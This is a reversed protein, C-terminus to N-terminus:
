MLLKTVLEMRPLVKSKRSEVEYIGTAWALLCEDHMSAATLQLGLPLGNPAQGAPLTCAPMGAYTWPLNMAPNGTSDIGQPAPGTAAPSIWLDIGEAAMLGELAARVTTRGARAAELEEATIRQGARIAQATREAYLQEHTAFWSAHVQAMEANMLVTQRRAVDEIDVLAAVRKITYGAQELAAVREEFAHLAERSAQALYAGEPVGLVPLRNSTCAQWDRCLLSAVLLMGEVDQTFLGVHDLSPACAILGGTPIRDFTPKFGVIGCFAAPRIVSGTTQTGAALPCFGAAVAAASGSSSGGPTHNLNRPNRTPGPHFYAFETTVTKGLILAGANRLMTIAPAEPGAFLEPPLASGGRTEFGDVCFIDKVGTLIGFLPPRSAPDPYQRLLAVAESLLRDRRGAEPLLAHIQPDLESVRDCSAQIYEILDLEGSRLGAAITALRASHIM